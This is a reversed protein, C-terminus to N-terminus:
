ELYETKIYADMDNYIIKSWGNSQHEILPFSEGMYAVGLQRGDTSDKDRINVTEKVRVTGTVDDDSSTRTSSLNVLYDSKIYAIEGEYVVQSWGNTRQEYCELVTGAEVRGVRDADESDSARVNVTDTAKVEFTVIEKAENESVTENEKNAEEEAIKMAALQTKVEDKIHTNFEIMYDKFDGNSDLVEKYEADVRTMLDMVDEQQSIAGIYQEVNKDFDGSYIYLAGDDGTCILLTLLSPALEDWNYLKVNYSIYTLYSNEFPGPKTYCTIDNYSEVYQSMAALKAAEIPDEFNRLKNVTAIDNAQRATFYQNVIENVEPYNNILLPDQPIAASNSSVNGDLEVQNASNSSVASAGDRVKAIIVIIIALALMAGLTGYCIIKNKAIWANFKDLASREKDKDKNDKDKNDKDKASQQASDSEDFGDEEFEEGAYEDYEAYRGSFGDFGASEGTYEVSEDGYYQQSYEPGDSSYGQYRDEAYVDEGTDMRYDYAGDYGDGYTAGPYEPNVDQYMSQGEYGIPEQYQVHGDASYYQQEGESVYEQGYYMDQSMGPEVYMSDDQVPPEGMYMDQGMVSDITQNMSAGDMLMDANHGDMMLADGSTPTYGEEAINGGTEDVHVSNSSDKAGVGVTMVGPQFQKRNNSNKSGRRKSM